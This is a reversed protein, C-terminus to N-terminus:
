NNKIVITKINVFELMGQSALERGYGSKKIGGFPLRPDSKVFDNVFCSGSFIKTKAIDEGKKIDKTFISAGLGFESSNALDIANKDNNAKIISFVPGFLEDDFAPMGPKVDGLLTLPYYSGLKEPFYGGMLLKAGRKVSELVQEHIEDRASKSVMPGLDVDTMPDGIKKNLLKNNLIELFKDYVTNIVIIRKASICSQGANLIRGDICAEASEILDADSLIIYPDSGGLELVTKKLVSAATTAVSIGAQNSGTLSVAAIDPNKIIKSVKSGPVIINKFINRPFETIKFSEEILKACGQVNSSHKLIAGNGVILSPIAFRFVQWFPFNWPMIGLILGLPQYTIFTKQGKIKYKIDSLIKPSSKYYYDCLDACKRVELISQKIPKGMEQTIMKSLELYNDKLYSSMQLVPALREELTLSSWYKQSKLSSKLNKKIKLETHVYHKKIIKNTAPNFSIIAM